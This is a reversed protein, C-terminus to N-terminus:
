FLGSFPPPTGTLHYAGAVAAKWLRPNHNAVTRANRWHRDLNHERSTASGGGADFVLESARLASSAAIFQAQAVAVSAEDLDGSDLTSAAAKVVASAAFAHASIEGVALQVYPDEAATAAPSHKIPRAHARTYAVADTLANRAIGALVAALYLQLFATVPSRVGQTHRQRLEEPYVVLADLDTTGSATLRQGMADFDDHLRLGDRTAPVIFSVAHGNDDLASATVWDAYLSGTSYYKSGHAVFHGNHQTLRATIAGNAGGVEWGANGIVAGELLRPYWRQRDTESGNVALGETFSFSPRLAQAVNSDAAALDVVFSMVDKVTAGAGGHSTPIRWALLQAVAM